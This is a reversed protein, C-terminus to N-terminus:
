KIMAALHPVIDEIKIDTTNVCIDYNLKDGWKQGTYFEYYRARSKDINKIYKKVKKEVLQESNESREICRRVKSQMDAYVFLRTPNYAKLIYDACRGVIVCNSTEAMKKLVREQELYVNQKQRLAYSDIYSFTHAVTIPFLEHPNCEVIQRVYNESLATNKAIETIIERDYYEYGLYEALKIGIERGGSGFERGITIIKNM